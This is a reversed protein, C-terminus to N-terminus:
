AHIRDEHDDTGEFSPETEQLLASEFDAWRILSRHGLKRIFKYRKNLDYVSTRSIGAKRATDAPSFFEQQVVQNAM